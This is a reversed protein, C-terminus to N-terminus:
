VVSQIKGDLFKFSTERESELVAYLYFTDTGVAGNINNSRNIEVFVDTSIGVKFVEPDVTIPICYFFYGGGNADSQSLDLMSMAASSRTDLQKGGAQYIYDLQRSFDNGDLNQLELKPFYQGNVNVRIRQINVNDYHFENIITNTAALRTTTQAFIWIRTPKYSTTTVRWNYDSTTAPLQISKYIKRDLWKYTVSGSSIQDLISIQAEPTPVVRPIFIYAKSLNFTITTDNVTSVLATLPNAKYFRYQFSLGKFVTLFQDHSPFLLALPIRFYQYNSSNAAPTIGYNTSTGFLSNKVLMGPDSTADTTGLVGGKSDKYMGWQLGNVNMYQLDYDTLATLQIIHNNDGSSTADDLITGEVSWTWRRFINSVAVPFAMRNSGATNSFPNTGSGSISLKVVLHAGNLHLYSERDMIPFVVEPLQSLDQDGIESYYRNDQYESYSVMGNANSAFNFMPNILEM